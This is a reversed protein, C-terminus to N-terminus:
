STEEEPDSLGLMRRLDDIQDYIKECFENYEEKTIQETEYLRRLVPTVHGYQYFDGGHILQSFEDLIWANPNSITSEEPDRYQKIWFVKWREIMMLITELEKRVAENM